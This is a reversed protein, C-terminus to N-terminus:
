IRSNMLIVRFNAIATWGDDDEGIDIEYFVHAFYFDVSLSNYHM